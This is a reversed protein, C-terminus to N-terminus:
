GNLRDKLPFGIQRAMEAHKLDMRQQLDTRRIHYHQVVIPAPRFFASLLKSLTRRLTM